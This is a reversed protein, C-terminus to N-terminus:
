TGGFKEADEAAFIDAIDANGIDVKPHDAVGVLPLSVRTPMWEARQVGVERSLARALLEKLSTGREAALLKAARM